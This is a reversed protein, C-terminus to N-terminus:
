LNLMRKRIPPVLGHQLMNTILELEEDNERSRGCDTFKQIIRYITKKNDYENCFRKVIVAM